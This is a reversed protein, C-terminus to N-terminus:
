SAPPRVLEHLGVIALVRLVGAEMRADIWLSCGYEQCRRRSEEIAALGGGDLYTTPSLDLVVDRAEVALCTLVADELESARHRDLEGDVRVVWDDGYSESHMAGQKRKTVM